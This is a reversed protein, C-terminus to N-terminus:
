LESTTSFTEDFAASWDARSAVQAGPDFFSIEAEERAAIANKYGSTRYFAPMSLQELKCSGLLDRLQEPSCTFAEFERQYIGYRQLEERQSQELQQYATGLHEGTAGPVICLSELAPMHGFLDQLESAGLPNGGGLNLVKLGALGEADHRLGGVVGQEGRGPHGHLDLVRLSDTALYRGVTALTVRNHDDAVFQDFSLDLHELERFCPAGLIAGLIEEDYHYTNPAVAGARFRPDLEFRDAEAIMECYDQRYCLRLGKVTPADDPMQALWAFLLPVRMGDDIYHGPLAATLSIASVLHLVEVPLAHAIFRNIWLPPAVRIREPWRSVHARVYPFMEDVFREPYLAGAEEIARCLGLWRPRSIEGLLAGRAASFLQNWSAKSKYVRGFDYFGRDYIFRTRSWSNHGMHGGEVPRGREDLEFWYGADDERAPAHVQKLIMSGDRSVTEEQSREDEGSTERVLLGEADYEIQHVLEDDVYTADRQSGDAEFFHIDKRAGVGATPKTYTAIQPTVESQAMTWAQMSRQGKRAFTFSTIAGTEACLEFSAGDLEGDHVSELALWRGQADVTTVWGQPKGGVFIAETVRGDGHSDRRPGHWVLEDVDDRLIYGDIRAGADGSLELHALACASAPPAFREFLAEARPAAGADILAGVLRNHESVCEWTDKFVTVEVEGDRMVELSAGLPPRVAVSGEAADFVRWPAVQVFRMNLHEKVMRVYRAIAAPMDPSALQSVKGNNDVPIEPGFPVWVEWTKLKGRAERSFLRGPALQPSADGWSAGPDSAYSIKGAFSGDVARASWEGVRAGDSTVDGDLEVEGDAAGVTVGIVSWETVSVEGVGDGCVLALLAAAREM